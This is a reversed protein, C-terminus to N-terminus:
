KSLEGCAKTLLAIVITTPTESSFHAMLKEIERQKNERDKLFWSSVCEGKKMDRASVLHSATLVSGHIWFYRQEHTLRLFANPPLEEAARASCVMASLMSLLLLFKM